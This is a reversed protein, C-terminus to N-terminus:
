YMVALLFGLAIIIGYWYIEKGFVVFAVRSPNFAIGLGPFEIPMSFM